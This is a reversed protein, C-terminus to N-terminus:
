AFSHVIAHTHSLSRAIGSTSPLTYQQNFLYKRMGTGNTKELTKAHLLLATKSLFDQLHNFGTFHFSISATTHADM